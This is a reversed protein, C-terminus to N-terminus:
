QKLLGDGGIVISGTWIGGLSIALCRLNKGTLTLIGKPKM